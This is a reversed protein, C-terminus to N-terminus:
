SLLTSIFKPLSPKGPTVTRSLGPLASSLSTLAASVVIFTDKKSSASSSDGLYSLFGHPFVIGPCSMICTCDKM